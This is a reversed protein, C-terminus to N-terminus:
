KTKIKTYKKEPKKLFFAPICMLFLIIAFVTFTNQWGTEIMLFKSLAPFMFMGLGGFATVFGAAKSRNENPFHKTVLPALCQDLVAGLGIGVLLGLNIQFM